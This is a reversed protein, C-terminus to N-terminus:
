LSSWCCGQSICHALMNSPGKAAAKMGGQLEAAWSVYEGCMVCTKSAAKALIQSITPESSFGPVSHGLPLPPVSALDGSKWEPGGHGKGQAGKNM